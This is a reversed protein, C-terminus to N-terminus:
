IGKIQKFSCSDQTEDSSSNHGSGVLIQVSNDDPDYQKVKGAKANTYVIKGNLICVQNVESCPSDIAHM